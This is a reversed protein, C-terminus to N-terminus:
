KERAAYEEKTMELKVIGNEEEVIRFGAQLHLHLATERSKEFTNCLAPLAYKIFATKLLLELAKKGYGKERSEKEVVVGMEYFKEEKTRHFNVEGVFRGDAARVIYAYFRRENGIWSDYWTRWREKPFDICGSEKDYELDRSEYGRNYAMTEADALLEQRYWLEEFRPVHLVIEGREAENKREAEKWKKRHGAHIGIHGIGLVAAGAIMWVVKGYIGLFLFAAVPLTAGALPICGLNGYFDRLRREGSFYKIWWIEYCLMLLFSAILWLSWPSWVRLNFDSFVLAACCVLVEGIRELAALFKNEGDASYGEPKRKTWLLNPIFLMLLWIFGVYSFGFHGM